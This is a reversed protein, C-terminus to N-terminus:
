ASFLCWYLHLYECCQVGLFLKGAVILIGLLLQAGVIIRYVILHMIAVALVGTTLLLDTNALTLANQFVFVTHTTGSEIVINALVGHTTSTTAPASCLLLVVCWLM